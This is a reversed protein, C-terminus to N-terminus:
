PGGALVARRITEQARASMEGCAKKVGREVIGAWGAQLGGIVDARGGLAAVAEAALAERLGEIEQDSLGLADAGRRAWGGAKERVENLAADYIEAASLWEGALLEEMAKSHEDGDLLIARLGAAEFVAQVARGDSESRSTLSRAVLKSGDPAIRVAGEGVTGEIRRM